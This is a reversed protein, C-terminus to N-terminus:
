VRWVCVKVELEKVCHVGLVWVERESVMWEICGLVYWRVPCYMGGYMGMCVVTCTVSCVSLVCCYVVMVVCCHERCHCAPRM